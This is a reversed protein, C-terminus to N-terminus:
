KTEGPLCGFLIRVEATPDGQIQLCSDACLKLRDGEIYFKGPGCANIDAVKEYDVTNAGSTYRIVATDPDIPKGTDTPMAYDCALVSKGIADEAMAQFISTYNLGCTPFRFGGTLKSLGQYGTGPAVAGTPSCKASIIPADPPHPKSTDVQDFPAVGVISHWVYNRRAATGFQPSMSTLASDFAGATNTGAIADEKKDDFKFGRCETFVQDDTIVAFVKFATPRLFQSWGQPHSGDKDAPGAFTTLVQCFANTSNVIQNYHIFKATEAPKAPIPSCTTGSLPSKVCIKQLEAGTNDHAGHSSIMIVRYDAQSQEIINVFNVNIQNEVEAIEEAMSESNDIVFIIDIPRKGEVAEAEKALCPEGKPADPVESDSQFGSSTGADPQANPDDDSSGCAGTLVVVSGMLVVVCTGLGVRRGFDCRM